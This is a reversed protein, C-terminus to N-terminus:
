SAQQSTRPQRGCDFLFVLSCTQGSSGDMDAGGMVTRVTGAISLYYPKCKAFIRNGKVWGEQERWEVKAEFSSEWTKQTPVYMKSGDRACLFYSNNACVHNEALLLDVRDNRRYGAENGALQGYVDEVAMTLDDCQVREHETVLGDRRRAVGGAVLEVRGPVLDGLAQLEYGADALQARADDVKIAAEM